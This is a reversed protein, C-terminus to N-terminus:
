QFGIHDGKPKIHENVTLETSSLNMFDYRGRNESWQSLSFFSNPCNICAYSAALCILLM